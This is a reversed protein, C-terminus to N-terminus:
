ASGRVMLEFGLDRVVEDLPEGKLRALLMSAAVEGMERTPVRISSLAPEMAAAVDLDAFGFIALQSPVAIHRHQCEM